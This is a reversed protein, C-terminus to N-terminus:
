WIKIQRESLQLRHAIEIRKRRTLYKNMSFEKMLEQTQYRTYTQRTRKSGKVHLETISFIFNNTLFKMWKEIFKKGENQEASWIGVSGSQASDDHSKDKPSSPPTAYNSSIPSVAVREEAITTLSLNISQDSIQYNESTSSSAPSVNGAQQQHYSFYPSKEFKRRKSPKLLLARLAPSDDDIKRKLQQSTPQLFNEEQQQQQGYFIEQNGHNLNSQYHTYNDTYQPQQQYYSNWQDSYNNSSPYNYNLADGYVAATQQYQHQNQQQQAYYGYSSNNYYYDSYQTTAMEIEKKECNM